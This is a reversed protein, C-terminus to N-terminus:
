YHSFLFVMHLTSPLCVNYHEWSHINMKYWHQFAAGGGGGGGGKLLTM